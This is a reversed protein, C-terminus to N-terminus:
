LFPLKFQPVEDIESVILKIIIHYLCGKILIKKRGMQKQKNMNERLWPKIYILKRTFYNWEVINKRYSDKIIFYIQHM